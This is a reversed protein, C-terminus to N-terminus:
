SCNQCFWSYQYGNPHQEKYEEWLLGLTVGKRRKLENHVKEFDPSTQNEFAPATSPFLLQELTSDDIESDVPWMVGAVRARILYDSVTSSGIGCSTAIERNSRKCENKLRLIERIKRMSVRKGPM